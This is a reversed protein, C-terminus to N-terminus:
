NDSWDGLRGGTDIRGRFLKSGKQSYVCVYIKRRPFQADHESM